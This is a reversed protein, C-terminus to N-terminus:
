LNVSWASLVKSTEPWQSSALAMGFFIRDTREWVSYPFRSSESM